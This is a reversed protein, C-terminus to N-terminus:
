QREQVSLTHERVSYLGMWLRQFVSAKALDVYVIGPLMNRTGKRERKRMISGAKENLKGNQRIRTTKEQLLVRRLM